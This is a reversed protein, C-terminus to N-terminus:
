AAERDIAPQKEAVNWPLLKGIRNVPHEATNSLVYCLYVEPDLGNLKLWGIV